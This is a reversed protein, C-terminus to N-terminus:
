AEPRSGAGRCCRRGPRHRGHPPHTGTRGNARGARWGSRASISRTPSSQSPLVAATERGTAQEVPRVRGDLVSLVLQERHSRRGRAGRRQHWFYGPLSAELGPHRTLAAFGNEAVVAPPCDPLAEAGTEYTGNLIQRARAPDLLTGDSLATAFSAMEHATTYPGGAGDPLGIYMPTGFVDVRGGNRQAAYPHALAHSANLALLQPRTYFDTRRMNAPNFVNQRMYDWYPRGSVAQVIAGLVVYGSNSYSYQTGPTFLLPQKRVFAM